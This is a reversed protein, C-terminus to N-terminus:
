AESSFTGTMANEVDLPLMTRGTRKEKARDMLRRAAAADSGSTIAEVARIRLTPVVEETDINTTLDKVDVLAVILRRHDPHDVLDQLIVDLGNTNGAPLASALKINTM